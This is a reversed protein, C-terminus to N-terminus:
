KKYYPSVKNELAYEIRRIKNRLEQQQVGLDFLIHPRSGATADTHTKIYEIQNEISELKEKLSATVDQDVPSPVDTWEEDHVQQPAPFVGQPTLTGELEKPKFYIPYSPYSPRSPKYFGHTPYYTPVPSIVQIPKSSPYYPYYNNYNNYHHKNGQPRGYTLPIFVGAEGAQRGQVNEGIKSRSLDLPNFTSEVNQNNSRGQGTSQIYKIHNDIDIQENILNTLEVSRTEDINFQRRGFLSTLRSILSSLPRRNGSDSNSIYEGTTYQEQNYSQYYNEPQYTEQQQNSIYEYNEDYDSESDDRQADNTDSSQAQETTTQKEPNEEDYFTYSDYVHTNDDLQYQYYGRNNSDQSFTKGDADKESKRVSRRMIGSIRAALAARRKNLASLLGRQDDHDQASAVVVAVLLLPILVKM